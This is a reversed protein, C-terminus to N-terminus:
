VAAGPRNEIKGLAAPTAKPQGLIGAWYLENFEGSNSVDYSTPGRLIDPVYERAPSSFVVPIFKKNKGQADYLEQTIIYGEFTVGKGKGPEEEGLFRRLYTETCVILVFKAQRVQNACWRPWGEPPSTEFQDIWCDVGKERLRNALALVANRHEPSDHSYSIFVRISATPPM